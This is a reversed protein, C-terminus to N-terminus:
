MGLPSFLFTSARLLSAATCHSPNVFPTNTYSSLSRDTSIASTFVITSSAALVQIVSVAVAVNSVSRVSRVFKEPVIQTVEFLPGEAASAVKGLFPFQISPFADLSKNFEAEVGISFNSVNRAAVEFETDTRGMRIGREVSFAIGLSVVLALAANFEDSSLLRRVLCEVGSGVFQTIKTRFGEAVDKYEQSKSRELALENQLDRVVLAYNALKVDTQALEDSLRCDGQVKELKEDLTPVESRLENVYKTKRDLKKQTRSKRNVLYSYRNNLETRHSVLLTSLVNVHDVLNPDKFIEKALINDEPAHPGDWQQRSYPPYPNSSFPYPIVYPGLALPFLTLDTDEVRSATSFDDESLQDYESDRALASRALTDLPDLCHRVDEAGPKGVFGGTASGKQAFDHGSTSAHVSGGIQLMESIAVFSSSPPPGLRKGLYSTPASIARAPTSGTRELSNELDVWFDSADDLGEVQEVESASSGVELGRKRLKRKKSPRNLESVVVSTSRVKGKCLDKSKKILHPDSQAAVVEDPTPVLILAGEAALATTHQPVRDLLPVPLHHLEEVIKADGIDYLRRGLKGSDDAKKRFVLDCQIKLWASSLGSRVLVEERMEHLRIIRACLREVYNRDYGDFPFDDSFCSHSHRWTLHDLIAGRDILFFNNKWNNLSPLGDDMCVDETKRRQAFSFWDRIADDPLHDMTLAPDPFCPHLDAPIRFTKVLDRLDDKSLTSVRTKKDNKSM